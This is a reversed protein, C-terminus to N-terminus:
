AQSSLSGQCQVDCHITLRGQESKLTSPASTQPHLKVELGVGRELGRQGHLEGGCQPAPECECRGVSRKIGVTAHGSRARLHPPPDAGGDNPHELRVEHCLRELVRVQPHPSPANGPLAPIRMTNPVHCTNTHTGGHRGVDHM